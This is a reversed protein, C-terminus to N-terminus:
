MRDILESLNKVLLEDTEQHHIFSSNIGNKRVRDIWLLAAERSINQELMGYYIYALENSVNTNFVAPDDSNICVIVNHEDDAKNMQYFQNEELVDLDAIAMNSSPNVELVIGKRGLKKKMIRQLEEVILIDQETIEYHVPREMEKVFRKCHRAAALLGADWVISEGHFLKQCLDRHIVACEGNRSDSRDASFLRHYGAILVEIGIGPQERKKEQEEQEGQEEQWDRRVSGYIKGSLDYVQKEIYALIATKLDNYNRSLTDYAWLYNELAEIQPIIIVPNQNKWKRAPIGLAIGHGNRDGAHFKLHEVAEDIRRLGSLIHRFDEGAHFTFGLSQMYGVSMNERGILEISSDRAQEYIPAFVWVPTANELSAADIGVLYRSLEKYETRLQTFVEIQRRYSEQLMGFQLYSCDSEGNVFCKEPVSGDQRKLFHIVLGVQPIRRYPVYHKQEQEQKYERKDEICYDEKLIKYYAKLFDLVDKKLDRYSESMSTRFEIKYLNPNQLQERIANEWFHSINAHNLASNVRYHAQQFYDLGKVTKQQVSIHFLYNRFRLYQMLCKKQRDINKGKNMEWLMYYLFVNEDLTHLHIDEGWIRMCLKDKFAEDPLYVGLANWLEIYYLAIEKESEKQFREAFFDEFERGKSFKEVLRGIEKEYASEGPEWGKQIELALCVRVIGCGLIYFLVRKNQEETGDVFRRGEFGRAREVTLPEMLSDWISSFSRSVGKHLHNEAIGAELVRSLQQDAVEINGYFGNLCGSDRKEQNLTMYMIAMVDMPIHCNLSHFLTVKNNGAFGGFMEEDGKNRWYKFVIRGDRHSILTTAMKRMLDLYLELGDDWKAAAYLFCKELYLYIEDYSYINYNQRIYGVVQSKLRNKAEKAEGDRQHKVAAIYESILDQRFMEMSTLPYCLVGLFRNISDNIM